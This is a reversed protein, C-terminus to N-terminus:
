ADILGERIMDQCRRGFWGQLQYALGNNHIHQWAALFENQSVPQEAGECILIAIGNEMKDLFFDIEQESDPTLNDSHCNVCFGGTDSGDPMPYFKLNNYSTHYHGCDNCTYGDYPQMYM